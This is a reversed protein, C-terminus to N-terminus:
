LPALAKYSPVPCYELGKGGMKRTEFIHDGSSPQSSELHDGWLTPLGWFQMKHAPQLPHRM